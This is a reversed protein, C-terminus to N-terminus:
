NVSYDNVLPKTCEPCLSYGKTMYIEKSKEPLLPAKCSDCGFMANRKFESQTIYSHDVLMLSDVPHVEEMYITYNIGADAQKRTTVSFNRISGEWLVKKYIDEETGKWIFAAEGEPFSPIDAYVHYIEADKTKIPHVEKISFIVKDKINFINNTSASRASIIRAPSTYTQKQVEPLTPPVYVFLKKKKALVKTEQYDWSNQKFTMITDEPIYELSEFKIRNRYAVTELMNKESAFMVQMDEKNFGVTLPREKNRVMSISNTRKDHWVVAYAGDIDSFVEEPSYKNLAEAIAMSDVNHAYAKVLDSTHITGNHVMTINGIQFPHANDPTVKGRTAQRGHGVVFHWKKIMKSWVPKLDPHYILDYPNGVTKAIDIAGDLKGGFMGTSHAGRLSNVILLEQFIEKDKHFLGAKNYDIIGIIGCM